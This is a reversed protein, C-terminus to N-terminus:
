LPFSGPLIGELHKVTEYMSMNAPNGQTIVVEQRKYVDLHTYSVPVIIVVALIKRIKMRMAEEEKILDTYCFLVGKVLMSRENTM